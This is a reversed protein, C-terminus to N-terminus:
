NRNQVVTVHRQRCSRTNAESLWEIMLKRKSKGGAIKMMKLCLLNNVYEM